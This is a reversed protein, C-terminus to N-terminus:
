KSELAKVRANLEQIAKIMPAILEEYGITLRDGGGNYSHDQYGGFDINLDTMVQKVEQAILGHHYRNRKKSGDKDLITTTLNQNEDIVDVKYDERLDWRFDVPRLKEIFELGLSTNKIDAKDRADSRNQVAGYAYVTTASDGLQVQNDGSIVGNRINAGFVSCNTYTTTADRCNSFYGCITNNNQTTQNVGTSVGIFTNNTGTTMQQGSNGGIIVDGNGSTLAIATSRGILINYTGTMGTRGINYGINTCSSSAVCQHGIAVNNTGVVSAVENMQLVETAGGATHVYITGIGLRASGNFTLNSEATLADTTATATVVRDNGQNAVSVGSSPPPYASGNINTTTLNSVGTTLVNLGYFSANTPFTTFGACNNIIVQQPLPNNLTITAGNFGCNILYLIGSFTSPVLISCYQDFECNSLTIFSGLPCNKGIEINHTLSSTGQFVVNNLNHAGLGSIVSTDTEFQVNGINVNQSTGDITLKGLIECLVGSNQSPSILSINTKNSIVVDGTFSGSSIYITSGSSVNNIASQISQQNDNVYLSNSTLQIAPNGITSLTNTPVDLSLGAGITYDEGATAQLSGSVVSLGSGVSLGSISAGDVTYLLENPDLNVNSLGVNGLYVGNQQNTISVSGLFAM